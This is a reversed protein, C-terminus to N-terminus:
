LRVCMVSVTGTSHPDGDHVDAGVRGPQQDRVDLVSGDGLEVPAGRHGPEALPELRAAAQRVVGHATHRRREGVIALRDVPEARLAHDRDGGAGHAVGLVAGLEAVLDLARKPMSARVIEPSSSARSVKRPAVAPRPARRPLREHDVDAAAAGLVHGAVGAAIGVEVDGRPHARHAVGLAVQM